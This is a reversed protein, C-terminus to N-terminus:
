QYSKGSWIGIIEGNSHIKLNLILTNDKPMHSLIQITILVHKEFQSMFRGSFLLLVNILIYSYFFLKVPDVQFPLKVSHHTM